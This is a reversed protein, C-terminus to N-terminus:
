KEAALFERRVEEIVELEKRILGRGVYKEVTEHSVSPDREPWKLYAEIARQRSGRAGYRDAMHRQFHLVTQRIKMERITQEATRMRGRKRPFEGRLYKVLDRRLGDHLEGGKELYAALATPKGEILGSFILAGEETMSYPLAFDFM